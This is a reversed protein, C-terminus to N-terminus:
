FIFKVLKLIRLNILIGSGVKSFGKRKKIKAVANKIKFKKKKFLYILDVMLYNSSINHFIKKLKKINYIKYGSLPDKINFRIFFFFSLIKESWRNLKDRQLILLDFFELKQNILESLSKVQHEGDSDMTVVYKFNNKKFIKKFGLILSNEYGKNIKNRIFKIKNKKLWHHTGDNSGDDVILFNFKKKKLELCLKKLSFIENYSPLIIILNTKALRDNEM